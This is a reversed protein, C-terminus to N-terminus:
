DGALLDAPSVESLSEVDDDDLYDELNYWKEEKANKRILRVQKELEAADRRHEEALNRKYEIASLLAYRVRGDREALEDEALDDATRRKSTRKTM